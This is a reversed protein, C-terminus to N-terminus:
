GHIQEFLKRAIAIPDAALGESGSEKPNAGDKEFLQAQMKMTTGEIEAYVGVPCNCDVELLRLFEREARLRLHTPGDNALSIVEKVRRDGSRIQLVIIGQGGAPIFKPPQLPSVFYRLNEFKTAGGNWSLGLRELGAAALVIGAWKNAALKRLRTPVNGRLEVIELDSRQWLLQYRRRISGTAIAGGNPLTELGSFDLSVLVDYAVARPLVAALETGEALTSPLDKASHVAADIRGSLLAREIEATFLGKRGAAASFKVASEEDGSTRIISPMLHVGPRAQELAASVLKTQALALDSGRTGLVIEEVM